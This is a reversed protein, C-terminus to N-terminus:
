RQDKHYHKQQVSHDSLKKFDKLFLTCPFYSIATLPVSEGLLIKILVMTKRSYLIITVM